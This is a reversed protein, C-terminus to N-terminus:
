KNKVLKIINTQVDINEINWKGKPLPFYIEDWNSSDNTDAILKNSTSIGVNMYGKPIKIILEKMTNNNTNIYYIEGM